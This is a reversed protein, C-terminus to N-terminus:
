GLNKCFDRGRKTFELWFPIDNKTKKDTHKTLYNDEILSNIGELLVEKEEKDMLEAMNDIAFTLSVGNPLGRDIEALKKMIDKQGSSM